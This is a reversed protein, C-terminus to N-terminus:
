AQPRSHLNNPSNEPNEDAVDSVKRSIRNRHHGLKNLVVMIAIWIGNYQSNEYRDKARFYYILLSTSSTVGTIIFLVFFNQPSLSASENDSQIDVCQESAILRQELDKLVGNERVNLLAEDIDPLLLSGKPFAFGYGGVQYTPGAIIFSKCYKAVFLKAVPAELFAAAIAGSRLARAYEDTSTFNRINSSKFGLPGELYGRVFSKRSYGIVAKNTKLTEINAIKPKLNQVTLMSSFSATYSQTIILAVFLWIVTATRSLNSHLKEGHFSFLTAFALWLLTGIQNLVPGRLESCYNKEIIWVVFGNFVNIFFTLFWTAKTFPKVFLWARSSHRLIPVVMVLGTETHSHTFEVYECRNSIIAIDGVAVDFEKSQVKKVLDTYTGGFPIFEYELSYKLHKATEDFVDVSFREITPLDWGRPPSSRGGLGPWNVDGLSEMSLNYVGHDITHSFGLNETWFGLERYHKGIINIIQFQTTPELKQGTFQINGSLGDFDTKLITELLQRGNSNTGENMALGVTWVADYAQLAVIGPEHLKEEPYRTNCDSIAGIVSPEM